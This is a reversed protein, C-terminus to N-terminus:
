PRYAGPLTLDHQHLIRQRSYTCKCSSRQFRWRSHLPRWTFERCCGRGTGDM